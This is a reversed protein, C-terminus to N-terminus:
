VAAGGWRLVRVLKLRRPPVFDQKITVPLSRYIADQCAVFCRMIASRCCVLLHRELSGDLLRDNERPRNGHGNAFERRYEKPEAPSPRRQGLPPTDLTISAPTGVYTALATRTM